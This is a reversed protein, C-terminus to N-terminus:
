RTMFIVSLIAIDVNTFKITVVLFTIAISQVVGAGAEPSWLLSFMFWRLARYDKWIKKSTRFVQTFGTTLLYSGEPVISLAPRKRFLFTWAYGFFVVGYVFAIGIALRATAVSTELPSRTQNNRWVTGAVIIFCALSLQAVYQRIYFHATYAPLASQVLTLEPLYAFVSASHVFLFFTQLADCIFVYLWNLTSANMALQMGTLLVVLIGSAVALLKRHRTHDIVAGLVPMLAAAVVGIVASGMTLLSSPKFGGLSCQSANQCGASATSMMLIASGTYSSIQTMPGRAASDMAWGTAENLYKPEEARSSSPDKMRFPTELIVRAWGPARLGGAALEAAESITMRPVSQLGEQPSLPIDGRFGVESENGQGRTDSTGMGCFNETDTETM